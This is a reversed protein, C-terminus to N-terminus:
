APVWRLRYDFLRRFTKRDDTYDLIDAGDKYATATDIEDPPSADTVVSTHMVESMMDKVAEGLEDAATATSAICSISVLSFFGDRAGALLVDQEEGVLNVVIYPRSAGQPAAAPYVRDAVLGTVTAADLLLRVAILTASM